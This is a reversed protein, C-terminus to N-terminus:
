LKLMLRVAGNAFSGEAKAPDLVQLAFSLQFWPTPSMRYFMELGKERFDGGKESKTHFVGFGFLDGVRGFPAEHAVGYALSEVLDSFQTQIDTNDVRLFAGFDGWLQQDFSLIFGESTALGKQADTMVANLRYSGEGLAEFDTHITAHAFTYVERDSLPHEPSEASSSLENISFGVTLWDLPRVTSLAGITSLTRDKVGANALPVAMFRERDDAAYRNGGFVLVPEIKGGMVMVREGWFRHQYFFARLLEVPDSDTTGTILGNKESFAATTIGGLQHVNMYLWQFRGADNFLRVAGYFDFQAHLNYNADSLSTGTRQLHILSYNFGFDIGVHDSLSEKMQFYDDLGSTPREESGQASTSSAHALVLLVV